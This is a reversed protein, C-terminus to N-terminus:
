GADQIECGADRMRCRVYKITKGVELHMGEYKTKIELEPMPLPKAYIDDDHYLLEYDKRTALVELTYEYLTPDDTKLHILGGPQLIKKYTDLFVPATLRRNPSNLFPDPFTIWIESIEGPAFFHDILEIRTRLFAVNDLQEALAKRAGKWIRAGKIDVGIFHRGPYQRALGLTYEGGGCALELTIPRNAGFHAENWLGKLDIPEGNIGTLHPDKFSFNEFVNPFTLLESFKQLKNRKSMFIAKKQINWYASWKSWM